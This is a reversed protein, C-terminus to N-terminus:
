GSLRASSTYFLKILDRRSLIGVLQNADDVIPIPNVSHHEIFTQVAQNISTNHNLVLPDSNMVQRVTTNLVREISGLISNEEHEHKFARSEQMLRVFTTLDALSGKTAIDYETVIGIVKNNKDVVPLGSVDNELLCNVAKILPAEPAVTVVKKTMIDKVSAFVDM